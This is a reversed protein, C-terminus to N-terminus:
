LGRRSPVPDTPGGVRRPAPCGRFAHLVESVVLGGPSGGGYTARWYTNGCPPYVDMQFFWTGSFPTAEAVLFTEWGTDTQRQISVPLRTASTAPVILEGFLRAWGNDLWFGALYDFAVGPVYNWNRLVLTTSSVFPDTPKTVLWVWPGSWTHGFSFQGQADTTTTTTNNWYGAETYDRIEIQTNALVLWQGGSQYTALGTITATPGWFVDANTLLKSTAPNLTVTLPNSEVGAIASNGYYVAFVAGTQTVSVTISFTGDQATVATGVVARAATMAAVGAGAIPRLQGTGAVIEKLTGTMRTTRRAADVYDPNLALGDVRSRSRFVLYGVGIQTVIAGNADQIDTDVRYFGPTGLLLPTSTVWVGLNATGSQRTFASTSAAELGTTPSILHATIQSVGAAAEAFVTLVAPDAASSAVVPVSPAPSSSIAPVPVDILVRVYTLGYQSCNAEFYLDLKKYSTDPNLEVQNVVFRRDTTGCTTAPTSVWLLPHESDNGLDGTTYDYVGQTVPAGHPGQVVMQWLGGSSRSWGVGKAGAVYSSYFLDGAAQSFALTGNQTWMTVQAVSWGAAQAPASAVLTGAFLALVM